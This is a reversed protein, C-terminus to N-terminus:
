KGKHPLTENNFKLLFGHLPNGVVSKAAQNSLSMQQVGYMAVCSVVSLPGKKGTFTQLFKALTVM